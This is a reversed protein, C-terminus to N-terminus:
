PTPKIGWDSQQQWDFDFDPTEHSTQFQLDMLNDVTGEDWPFVSLTETGWDETLSGLVVSMQQDGCYSGDVVDQHDPIENYASRPITANELMMAVEPDFGWDGVWQDISLGTVFHDALHDVRAQWTDLWASCFGCRSRVVEPQTKWSEMAEVWKTVGHTLRLHQRLHDKRYFTREAVPRQACATYGHTQLHEPSPEVEPCFACIVECTAHDVVTGGHPTCTWKELPLHCSKEHRQWEHKRKFSAECFTCPFPQHHHQPTTTTSIECESKPQQQQQQSRPRRATSGNRRDLRKLYAFTDLCQQEVDVSQNAAYSRIEMSSISSTGTRFYQWNTSRGFEEVRVSAKCSPRLQDHQANRRNIEEVIASVPAVEYEVGLSLWREFPHLGGMYPLKPQSTTSSTPRSPEPAPEPPRKGRKRANAFWHNVQMRSLGSMECLHEKEKDTPYPFQSHRSLWEALVMKASRPLRSATKASHRKTGLPQRHGKGGMALTSDLEMAVNDFRDAEKTPSPWSYDNSWPSFEAQFPDHLMDSESIEFLHPHPLELLEPMSTSPSSDRTEVTAFHQFDTTEEM